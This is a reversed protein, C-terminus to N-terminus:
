VARSLKRVYARYLPKLLTRVFNKGSRVCQAAVFGRGKSWEAVTRASTDSKPCVRGILHIGFQRKIKKTPESTFLYQIGVEAAAQVTEDDMDGGPVSATDVKASLIEELVSKSTAWEQVKQQYSLDRFINPHTHSHTGVIHGLQHIRIIESSKLFTPSGIMSTTVFFHGVLDRRSLEEAIFVSSKGGDDFSLMLPTHTISSLDAVGYSRSHDKTIEDLDELFRRTSHKYRLAGKNQFGSSQPEDTVEHYLFTIASSTM